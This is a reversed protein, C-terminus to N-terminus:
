ISIPVSYLQLKLWCWGLADQLQVEECGLLIVIFICRGDWQQEWLWVCLLCAPNQLGNRLRSSLGHEEASRVILRGANHCSHKTNSRVITILTHKSVIVIVSQNQVARDRGCVELKGNNCFIRVIDIWWHYRGGVQPLAWKCTCHLCSPTSLNIVTRVEPGVSVRPFPRPPSGYTYSVLLQLFKRGWQDWGRSGLVPDFSLTECFVFRGVLGTKSKESAM